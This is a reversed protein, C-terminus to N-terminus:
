EVKRLKGGKGSDIMFSEMTQAARTGMNKPSAIPKGTMSTEPSAILSYSIRKADQALSHARECARSGVWLVPCFLKQQVGSPIGHYDM